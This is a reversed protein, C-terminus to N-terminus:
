NLIYRCVTFLFCTRSSILLLCHSCDCHRSEPYLETVAVPNVGTANEKFEEFRIKWILFILLGVRSCVKKEKRKKEKEGANGLTGIAKQKALTAMEPANITVAEVHVDRTLDELRNSAAVFDATLLRSAEEQYIPRYTHAPAHARYKTHAQVATHTTACVHTHKM